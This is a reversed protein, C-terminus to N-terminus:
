RNVIYNYSSPIRPATMDPLFDRNKQLYKASYTNSAIRHRKYFRWCNKVKAFVM